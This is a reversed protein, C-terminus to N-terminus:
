FQERLIRKALVMLKMAKIQEEDSDDYGDSDNSPNKSDSIIHRVIKEEICKCEKLFM